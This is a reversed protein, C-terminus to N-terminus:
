LENDARLDLLTGMAEAILAEVGECGYGAAALSLAM